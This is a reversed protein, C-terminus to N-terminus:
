GRRALCVITTYTMRLRGGAREIQARVGQLLAARLQPALLIHDQHTALLQAYQEGSYEISWSHESVDPELFRGSAAIEGRWDGALDFALSGPHMPFGPLMQPVVREYVGLLRERLEVQRWRPLTWLAALTGGPALAGAAREYRVRPDVWHWSQAALVLAAPERPRYDEFGLERVEVRPFGRCGRRAIAAMAADPELALVRMGRRALLVTAKGTGAGVEVVLEGTPALALAEDIAARPYSPRSSDYLEAVRGFALRQEDSFGEGGGASM